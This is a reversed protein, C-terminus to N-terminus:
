TSQSVCKHNVEYVEDCNEITSLRHAIIIITMKGQLHEIAEMVAAETENDLASTAEDLFLVQPNRFLARAIGIRQRQGGSIRAGAEGIMTDLGEPLSKVFESLQAKELVKWIDADDIQSSEIGFAINNRITDDLMYINQPIYGILNRWSVLNNQIDQGDVLVRGETPILLGLLLDALTTKGAGSPGIFAITQNKKINLYISKLVDNSTDPYCFSLNEAVINREFTMSQTQTTYAQEKELSEVQSLKQHVSEIVIGNHMILGIYSSIKNVSPLLRFASVAFIALISIFGETKVGSSLKIGILMMLGTVCLIEMMPKPIASLFVNKREAEVNERNADTFERHFFSERNAIKVEKIGGFGQQMTQMMKYYYYRRRKGLEGLERRYRGMFLLVMLGLSTAVGITIFTDKILLYVIIVFSIICESILQLFNLVTAYFMDTDNLIDRMLEASNHKLHFAYEQSLFCKMFRNRLDRKGYYSFKYQIDYMYLLFINKILYVGIIVGCTIFLLMNTNLHFYLMIASICKQSTLQSPDTVLDIFPVIVSVGLLELVAQLIMVFTLFVLKKRQQKNFVSFM